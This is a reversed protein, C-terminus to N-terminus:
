VFEEDDPPLTATLYVLQVGFRVLRKLEFMKQRWASTSDIVAHCEDVVIRELRDMMTQRHIFRRFSQTVASESHCAYDVSVGGAALWAVCGINAQRCREM